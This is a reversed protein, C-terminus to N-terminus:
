FHEASLMFEYGQFEDTQEGHDPTVVNRYDNQRLIKRCNEDESGFFSGQGDQEIEVQEDDNKGGRQRNSRAVDDVIKVVALFVQDIAGVLRHEVSQDALFCFEVNIEGQIEDHSQQRNDNRPSSEQIKRGVNEQNPIIRM